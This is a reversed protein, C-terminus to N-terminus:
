HRGRSGGARPRAPRPCQGAIEQSATLKLPSSLRFESAISALTVGSAVTQYSTGRASDGPPLLDSPRAPHTATASTSSGGGTCATLATLIMLSGIIRVNRRCSTQSMAGIISVPRSQRPSLRSVALDPLVIVRVALPQAM